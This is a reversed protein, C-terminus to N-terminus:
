TAVSLSLVISLFLSISPYIRMLLFTVSIGVITYLTINSMFIFLQLKYNERLYQQHSIQVENRAVDTLRAVRKRENAVNQLIYNNSNYAENSTNLSRTLKEFDRKNQEMALTQNAFVNKRDSAGRRYRERQVVDVLANDDNVMTSKVVEDLRHQMTIVDNGRDALSNAIRFEDDPDFATTM